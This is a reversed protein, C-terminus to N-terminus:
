TGVAAARELAAPDTIVVDRGSVTILGAETFAALKRSLTEPTTGILSAVDKKAVPLTVVLRGDVHRAPLGVLYGALRAEVDASTLDAILREAADLRSTVTRLMRLAIDPFQAVLQGLEAHDFSCLEVDGLATAWDDPRAGTVFATEGIFDGPELIRLVQEHGSTALHSIRIRGRHVVLLHSVDDGPRHIVEGRRRRMPRAHRAIEDQEKPSLGQFLPVIAVCSTGPRHSM